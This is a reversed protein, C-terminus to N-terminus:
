VGGPDENLFSALDAAYGCIDSIKDDYWRSPLCHLKGEQAGDRQEGLYEMVNNLYEIALELGPGYRAIEEKTPM